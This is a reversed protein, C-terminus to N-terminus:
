VKKQCEMCFVNGGFKPKNFWCFKAVNYPVTAACSHCILKQKPKDVATESPVPATVSTPAPQPTPKQTVAPPQVKPASPVSAPKSLGFKAAVDMDLRKHKKALGGALQMLTDSGILKAIGLPSNSDNSKQLTTYLMDTKIISNLGDIEKSATKPRSIRANKSVLVLSHLEPRLTMGLRKPLEVVGADFLRQLILIHRNNQEIPSPVGFARGGYFATFEGHENIAIGESFHKSECVYVQMLRNILLHDIQAVIGGHEIRLDHIVAWNQSEGFHVKMEYAADNEGRVGAQINRIEQEIKKKTPTDVHSQTLLEQLKEIQPTKSDANKIIM